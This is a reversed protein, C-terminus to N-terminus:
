LQYSRLFGPAPGRVPRSIDRQALVIDSANESWGAFKQRSKLAKESPSCPSL